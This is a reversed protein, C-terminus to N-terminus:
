LGTPHDLFIWPLHFRAALHEALAKVGLTETAYHGGYLVNLGLEEAEFYTHHSGEGTVFTDLGALAAESIFSGGAGTAVGVRRVAEPGFLMGKPTAGLVETLGAVFRDRSTETEGWVGCVQEHWTGFGGRVVVGLRRALLAANGIDV